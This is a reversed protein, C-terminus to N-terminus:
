PTEPPAAPAPSPGVGAEGTPGSPWGVGGAVQPESHPLAFRRHDEDGVEILDPEGDRGDAVVAREVRHRRPVIGTARPPAARAPACRGAARGRRTRGARSPGRRRGRRSAAASGRRGRCRCERPCRPGRCGRRSVRDGAGFAVDPQQARPRGAAGEIVADARAGQHEGGGASRRGPEPVRDDEDPAHAFLDAQLARPRRGGGESETRRPHVRDIREDRRVGRELPPVERPGARVRVRDCAREVVARDGRRGVDIGEPRGRPRPRIGSCTPVVLPPLSPEAKESQPTGSTGIPQGSRYECEGASTTSRRSTAPSASTTAAM